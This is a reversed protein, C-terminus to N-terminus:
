FKPFRPPPKCGCRVKGCVDCFSSDSRERIDPKPRRMEYTLAGLSVKATVVFRRAMEFLVPNRDGNELIEAFKASRAKLVAKVDDAKRAEQEFQRRAFSMTGADEVGKRRHKSPVVRSRADRARGVVARRDSKVRWKKKQQSVRRNWDKQLMEEGRALERRRMIEIEGLFRMHTSDLSEELEELELLLMEIEVTCEQSRLKKGELEAQAMAMTNTLMDWETEYAEGWGQEILEEDLNELEKEVEPLRNEMRRRDKRLFRVRAISDKKIQRARALDQTNHKHILSIQVCLHDVPIPFADHVRVRRCQNIPM